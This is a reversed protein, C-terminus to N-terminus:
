GTKLGRAAPADTGFLTEAADLRLAEDLRQRRGAITEDAFVREDTSTIILGAPIDGEVIEIGGPVIRDSAGAKLQRRLPAVDDAHARVSLARGPLAQRTQETFRCLADLYRRPDIHRLSEVKREAADLVADLEEWQCRAMRARAELRADQLACARRRALREEARDVEARAETEARARAEAILGGAREHATRRAAEGAERALQRLRDCLAAVHAPEAHTRPLADPATEGAGAPRARSVEPGADGSM